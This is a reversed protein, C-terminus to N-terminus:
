LLKSATSKEIRKSMVVLLLHSLLWKTLLLRRDRFGQYSGDAGAYRMLKTLTHRSGSSMLTEDHLLILATSKELRKSIV